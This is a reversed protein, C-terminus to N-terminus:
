PLIKAFDSSGTSIAIKKSPANITTLSPYTTGDPLSAFRVDATLVEKPKQFYTKVGIRDVQMTAPNLFLRLEDGPKAYDHVVMSTVNTAGDHELAVKHDAFAQKLEEPKFPLYMKTLTQVDQIAGKADDIKQKEVARMILGGRLRPQSQSEPDLPTKTVTGDVAYRCLTRRPPRTNGNLTVTASEIWQYKHLQEANKQSAERMQQLRQQFDPQQDQARLAIPGSLLMPVIMWGLLFNGTHLKLQNSRGKPKHIGTRQSQPSLSRKEDGTVLLGSTAAARLCM